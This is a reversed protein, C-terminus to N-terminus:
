VRILDIVTQSRKPLPSMKGIDSWQSPPGHFDSGMSALLEFEDCLRAFYQTKDPNQMGSVVEIAQGGALKFTEILRRLKTNTMRYKGPHALVAVGDAARIWEVVETVTPWQAKVDGLKGTGLYKDFAQAHTAVVNEEILFQAFHPRGIQADGAIRKAGAYAGICGRAELREAIRKARLVRANQQRALARQLSLSDIDVDLGVIHISAGGWTASFEVGSVLSIGKNPVQDKIALYGQITDHDTIALLDIGQEQARELLQAPSLQGDSATTHCHLDIKM